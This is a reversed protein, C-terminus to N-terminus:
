RVFCAPGGPPPEPRDDAWLEVADKAAAQLPDASLEVRTEPIGQSPWEVVLTLPGAPPLPWLWFTAAWKRGGGGGGGLSLVPEAPAGDETRRFSAFRLHSAKAGDSFQVGVRLVDSSADTGPHRSAPFFADLDYNTQRSRVVMRFEVGSPYAVFADAVIAVNPSRVLARGIDAARGAVNEPAALWEPPRYEEPQDTPPPLPVDDFFGM